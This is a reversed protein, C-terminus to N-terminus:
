RTAYALRAPGSTVRIGCTLLCAHHAGRSGSKLCPIYPPPASPQLPNLWGVRGGYEQRRGLRMRSHLLLLQDPYRAM